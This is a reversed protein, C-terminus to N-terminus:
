FMVPCEKHGGSESKMDQIKKKWYGAKTKLNALTSKSEFLFGLTCHYCLLCQM